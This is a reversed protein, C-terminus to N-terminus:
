VEIRLAVDINLYVSSGYQYETKSSACDVPTGTIRVINVSNGLSTSVKAISSWHITPFENTLFVKCKIM